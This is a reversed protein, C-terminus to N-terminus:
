VGPSCYGTLRLDRTYRRWLLEVIEETFGGGSQRPSRVANLFGTRLKEFASADAAPAASQVKEAHM